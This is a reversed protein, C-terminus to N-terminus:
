RPSRRRVRGLVGAVAFIARMAAEMRRAPRVQLLFRTRGDHSNRVRHLTRRPVEISESETLQRQQQGLQISVSGELIEVWEDQRLHLHRPVHGGPDLLVEVELLQGATQEGTRMFQLHQGTLPDNLMGATEEQLWNPPNNLDVTIVSAPANEVEAIFHRGDPLSFRADIHQDPWSSRAAQLLDPIDIVLQGGSLNPPVILLVPPQSQVGGLVPQQHYAQLQDLQWALDSRERPSIRGTLAATAARQVARCFAEQQEATIPILAQGQRDHGTLAGTAQDVKAFRHVLSNRVETTGAYVGTLTRWLANDQTLPPLNGHSQGALNRKATITLRGTSSTTGANAFALELLLDLVKWAAGLALPRLDVHVQQVGGAYARAVAPVPTVRLHNTAVDKSSRHPRRPPLPVLAELTWREFATSEEFEDLTSIM